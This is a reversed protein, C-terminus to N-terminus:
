FFSKDNSYEDCNKIIKFHLNKMINKLFTKNTYIKENKINSAIKDKSIKLLKLVQKKNDTSQYIELCIKYIITDIKDILEKEANNFKNSKLLSLEDEGIYACYQDQLKEYAEKDFTKKNYNTSNLNNLMNEFTTKYNKLNDDIKEENEIDNENSNINSFQLEYKKLDDSNINKLDLNDKSINSGTSSVKALDLGQNSNKNDQFTNYNIESNIKNEDEFDENNSDKSINLNILNSSTKNTNDYKNSQNIINEAYKKNQINDDYSPKFIEFFDMEQIKNDNKNETKKNNKDFNSLYLNNLNIKNINKNIFSNKNKYDMNKNYSSYSNINIPYIKNPNILNLKAYNAQQYINNKNNPTYTFNNQKMKNNVNLLIMELEEKRKTLSEIKSTLIKQKTEYDSNYISIFNLDEILKEINKKYNSM